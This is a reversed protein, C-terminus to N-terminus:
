STPLMWMKPNDPLAEADAGSGSAPCGALFAGVDDPVQTREAM